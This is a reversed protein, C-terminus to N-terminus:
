GGGYTVTPASCQGLENSPALWAPCAAMLAQLRETPDLDLMRRLSLPALM